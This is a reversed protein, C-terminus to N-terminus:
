SLVASIMPRAYEIKPMVLVHVSSPLSLPNLQMVYKNQLIGEHQFILQPIVHLTWKGLFM